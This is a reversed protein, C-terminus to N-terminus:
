REAGELLEALRTRLPEEDGTVNLVKTRSTAGSVLAVAARPVGFADAVVRTVAENARGDVPPEAVRVVLAGGHSGGAGTRTSSRPRVHVTVRM